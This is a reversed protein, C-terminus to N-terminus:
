SIDQGAFQILPKILLVTNKNQSNENILKTIDYIKGFIVVWCDNRYNHTAIEDSTYWRPTQNNKDNKYEIVLDSNPTIREKNYGDVRLAKIEKARLKCIRTYVISDKKKNSKTNKHEPKTNTLAHKPPKDNVTQQIIIASQEQKSLQQNQKTKLKIKEDVEKKETQEFDKIQQSTYYHKPNTTCLTNLLSDQETHQVHTQRTLYGRIHSQILTACQEKIENNTNNNKNQM